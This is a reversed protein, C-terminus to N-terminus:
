DILEALCPYADCVRTLFERWDTGYRPADDMNRIADAIADVDADTRVDWNSTVSDVWNRLDNVTTIVQRTM